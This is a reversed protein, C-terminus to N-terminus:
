SGSSAERTERDLGLLTRYMEVGARLFAAVRNLCGAIWELATAIREAIDLNCEQGTIKAFLGLSVWVSLISLITLTIM